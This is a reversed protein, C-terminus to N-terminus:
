EEDNGRFRSDAPPHGAGSERKRPFSSFHHDRSHRLTVDASLAVCSNGCHFVFVGFLLRTMGAKAPIVFLLPRSFSWSHRECSSRCLFQRLAFVSVRRCCRTMGAFAPIRPRADAVSERRRPFSSLYHDRSHRLAINAPLAVCSDGRRFVSVRRCCRTMGAFAPIRLRVGAGSERKRPFSSSHRGCFPRCLFQRLSLRFGRIIVEDNGRFRSDAPPRGAGSERKRPFSSFYRDRSHRLAINAPLAVCSNGHRFVAVQFCCRTMGAFAPIRLRVGRALNGSERSHRFTTTAPIVFLPATERNRRM